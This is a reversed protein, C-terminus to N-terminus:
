FRNFLEVQQATFDSIRSNKQPMLFIQAEFFRFVNKWALYYPVNLVFHTKFLLDITKLTPQDPLQISHGDGLILYESVVSEHDGVALVYPQVPHKWLDRRKTIELDVSSGVPVVNYIQDLSPVTSMKKEYPYVSRALGLFKVLIMMANLCDNKTSSSVSGYKAPEAYGLKLLKEIYEHGDRILNDGKGPFMLEFEHIIMEGSFAKLHCFVKLISDLFYKEDMIFGRREEFTKRALTTISEKNSDIGTICGLYKLDSSLDKKEINRKIVPVLVKRQPAKRNGGNRARPTDQLRQRNAINNALKGKGNTKDFLWTWPLQGEKTCRQAFKPFTAVLCVAMAERESTLLANPDTHLSYLHDVLIDILFKFMDGSCYGTTNLAKVLEDSDEVREIIELIKFKLHSPSELFDRVLKKQVETLNTSVSFTLHEPIIADRKSGSVFAQKLLNKQRFSKKLVIQKSKSRSPGSDGMIREEDEDEGEEEQLNEGAKRKRLERSSTSVTKVNKAKPESSKKVVSKRKSKGGLPKGDVTLTTVFSPRQLGEFGKATLHEYHEIRNFLQIRDYESMASLVDKTVYELMTKECEPDLEKEENSDESNNLETSVETENNSGTQSVNLQGSSLPDKGQVSSPPAKEQRLPPNAKEVTQSSSTSSGKLGATEMDQLVYELDWIEGLSFGFDGLDEMKKFRGFHRGAIMKEAAYFCCGAYSM